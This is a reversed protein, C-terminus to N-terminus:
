NLTEETSTAETSTASTTPTSTALELLADDATIIDSPRVLELTKQVKRGLRDKAEFTLISYGSPLLLKEAFNGQEDLSIPRGLISLWSVNRTKGAVIVLNETILSGNEPTTITIKPGIWLDYAEFSGYGILFLIFIFIWFRQFTLRSLISDIRM